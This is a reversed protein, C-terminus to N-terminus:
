RRFMDIVQAGDDSIAPANISRARASLLAEAEERLAALEDAGLDELAPPAAHKAAVAASFGARDLIGLLVDAKAKAEKTLVPAALMAALDDAAADALAILKAGIRATVAGRGGVKRKM